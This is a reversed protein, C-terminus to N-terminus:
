SVVQRLSGKRKSEVSSLSAFGSTVGTGRAVVPSTAPEEERRRGGRRRSPPPVGSRRKRRTFLHPNPTRTVPAKTSTAATITSHTGSSSGGGPTASSSTSTSEQRGQPAALNPNRGDVTEITAAAFLPARSSSRITQKSATPPCSQSRAQRRHHDSRRRRGCPPKKSPGRRRTTAPEPTSTLIRLQQVPALKQLSKRTPLEEEAATGPATSHFRPPTRTRTEPPLRRPRAPPPRLRHDNLTFIGACADSPDQPTEVHTHDPRRSRRAAPEGEDEGPPAATPPRRSRAARHSRWPEDPKSSSRARAHEHTNYEDQHLCTNGKLFFFFHRATKKLFLIRGM